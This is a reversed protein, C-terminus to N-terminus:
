STDVKKNVKQPYIKNFFILFDVICFSLICISKLYKSKIRSTGQIKFSENRDYNYIKYVVEM